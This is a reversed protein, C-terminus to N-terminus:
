TYTLFTSYQAFHYIIFNLTLHEFTAEKFQILGNYINDLISQDSYNTRQDAIIPRLPPNLPRCDSIEEWKMIYTIHRM